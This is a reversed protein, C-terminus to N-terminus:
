GAVCDCYAQVVDANKTLSVLQKYHGPKMSPVCLSRVLCISPEPDFANVMIKRIHLEEKFAWGKKLQKTAADFHRLIGDHSVVPISTVDTEWGDKFAYLRIFDDADFVTGACCPAPDNEDM